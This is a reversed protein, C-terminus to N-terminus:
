ETSQTSSASKRTVLELMTKRIDPFKELARQFAPSSLMEQYPSSFEDTSIFRLPAEDLRDLASAFLRSELQPDLRAAERRYGEYARAVAAKFAYDEALRFRQGIQKTALWAFWVPAAIALFSMAANLWLFEVTIAPKSMLQQMTQLRFYGIAAGALLASVLLGVWVWTTTGLSKAREAFSAALGTTTAASYAGAINALLKDSEASAGTIEAVAKNIKELGDSAQKASSAANARSTEVEKKADTLMQLDTPLELAAQHADNITRVQNSLESAKPEM